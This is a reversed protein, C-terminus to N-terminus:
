LFALLLGVLGGLTLFPMAPYFRNKKSLLLLGFLGIAFWVSVILASVFGLSKLAVGSLLLPFGIDGGGLVATKGGKTRIMLGAFVKLTTQFQAMKVMHKTKWVAIMDYVSIALLLLVVTSVTLFPVFVAALGGYLFVETVNHVILHQRVVKWWTLLFAVVLAIGARMWAGFAILLCFWVSAFFWVKWVLGLHFRMLLLVLITAFAVFLLVMVFSSSEQIQPREFGYPLEGWSVTKEIAGDVVETKVTAYQDLILLGVVHSLLFLGVLLLTVMWSHKM